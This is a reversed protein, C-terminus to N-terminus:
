RESEWEEPPNTPTKPVSLMLRYSMVIGNIDSGMPALVYGAKEWM